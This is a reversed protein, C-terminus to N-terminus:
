PAPRSALAKTLQAIQGGHYAGHEVVGHLMTRVTYRRGPVRRNLAAPDLQRVADALREHALVMTGRARTWGAATGRSPAPWDEADDPDDLSEPGLRQEAIRAWSAIHLVLEWISHAGAIPHAAADSASISRLLAGLAEGHWVPGTVTAEIARALQTAEPM